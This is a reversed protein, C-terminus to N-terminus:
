SNSVVRRWQMCRAKSLNLPATGSVRPSPLPRTTTTAASTADPWRRAGRLIHRPNDRQRYSALTFDRAHKLEDDGRSVSNLLAFRQNDPANSDSKSDVADDM